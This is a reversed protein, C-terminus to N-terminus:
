DQSRALVLVYAVAIAVQVLAIPLGYRLFRLFSIPTGERACIGGAAVNAAAGILTANGGLTAGFMLGAYVPLVAAPWASFTAGLADESVVEVLVLYGKVMLIMAVALPLNPVLSSAAAIGVLLAVAALILNQGFADAMLRYIGSLAGSSVLGTVLFFMCGVFLLTKWDVDRIVESVSDVRWGYIALLAFTAGLIAAAPPGLAVPLAEGRIFLAVMLALIALTVALFVPRKIAEPGGGGVKGQFRWERRFLLPALAMPVLVCLVGCLSLESLYRGYTMGFASGVTFAAPDGVFTLLGASNATIVMLIVPPMFDMGLRRAAGIIVPTLLIVVTTSPLLACLPAAMLTVSLLFRWGAGGSWRLLSGGMWDFLGTPVLTRAVVMGGFLLALPAGGRDLVIPVDARTLVGTLAFVVIGLMAAVTMDLLDFVIVILVISMTVIAILAQHQAILESLTM